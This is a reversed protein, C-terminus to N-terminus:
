DSDEAHNAPTRTLAVALLKRMESELMLPSDPFWSHFWDLAAEVNINGHITTDEQSNLGGRLIRTHRSLDLVLREATWREHSDYCQANALADLLRSQESTLDPRYRLLRAEDVLEGLGYSAGPPRPQLSM